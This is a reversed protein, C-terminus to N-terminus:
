ETFFKKITHMTAQRGIAAISELLPIERPLGRRLQRGQGCDQVGGEEM